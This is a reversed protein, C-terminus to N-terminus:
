GMGHICRLPEPNSGDVTDNYMGRGGASGLYPSGYVTVSGMLLLVRLLTVSQSTVFQLLRM